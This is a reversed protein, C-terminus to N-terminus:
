RYGMCEVIGYCIYLHCCLFRPQRKREYAGGALALLRRGRILIALMSSPWSIAIPGPIVICIALPRRRFHRLHLLFINDRVEIRRNM